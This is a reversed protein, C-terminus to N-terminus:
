GSGFRFSYWQELDDADWEFGLVVLREADGPEMKAPHPADFIHMIDHECGTPNRTNTYKLFINLAEILDDM